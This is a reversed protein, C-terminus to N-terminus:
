GGAVDDQGVAVYRGTEDNLSKVIKVRLKQPLEVLFGVDWIQRHNELGIGAYDGCPEFCTARMVAELARWVATVGFGRVVSVSRFPEDLGAVVHQRHVAGPPWGLLGRCENAGM